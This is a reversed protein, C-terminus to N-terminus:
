GRSIFALSRPLVYKEYCSVCVWTGFQDKYGNPDTYQSITEMDIACHEHDWGDKQVSILTGGELPSSGAKGVFVVGDRQFKVADSSVFRTKEWHRSPDLVIAASAGWYGDFYVYTQGVQLLASMKQDTPTFIAERQEAQLDSMKGKIMKDPLALLYAFGNGVGTITSFSGVLKIVGGEDVAQHITFDPQDFIDM